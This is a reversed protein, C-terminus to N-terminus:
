VNQNKDVLIYLPGSSAGSNFEDGFKGVMSDNQRIGLVNSNWGDSGSDTMTITLEITNPCTTDPCFTTFYTTATFTSPVREYIVTGNLAKITFGVENTKTGLKSLVVQLNYGKYATIYFPTFTKNTTFNDGFTAITSSNQRFAFVNGNWGDGFTDTLNVILDVVPPCGSIPCFGKFITMVNFKRGPTREYIITGSITAKVVFGVEVTDDGLTLVVIRVESNGRVTFYFPGSSSGDTFTDGIVGVVTNNQKIGLINGNWGDGYTDTLTVTLNLDGTDDIPLTVAMVM